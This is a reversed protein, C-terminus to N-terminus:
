PQPASPERPSPVEPCGDGTCEIGVDPASLTVSPVEPEGPLSSGAPLLDQCAAAADRYEDSFVDVGDGSLSLRVQGDETITIGPFDAVGNDRMCTTFEEALREREEASLSDATDSSDSSTDAATEATSDSTGDSTDGIAQATGWGAAVTLVGAALGVGWAGRRLRGRTRLM